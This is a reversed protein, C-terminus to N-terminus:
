PNRLLQSSIGYRIKYLFIYTSSLNIIRRCGIGRILKCLQHLYFSDVATSKSINLEERIHEHKYFDHRKQPDLKISHNVFLLGRVEVDKTQRMYRMLHKNLDRYMQEKAGAEITKAEGLAFYETSEDIINLDERKPEGEPLSTDVDIVRFGLFSLAQIIAEKFPENDPHDKGTLLTDMWLFEEKASEIKEEFESLTRMAQEIFKEREDVIVQIPVPNYNELWTFNPETFLHEFAPKVAKELLEIAVDDTKKNFTPLIIISKNYDSTSIEIYLPLKNASNERVHFLIKRPWENFKTGFVKFDNNACLILHNADSSFKKYIEAVPDSDIHIDKFPQFLPYAVDTKKGSERLKKELDSYFSAPYLERKINIVGFDDFGIKEMQCPDTNPEIFIISVSNRKWVDKLLIEM